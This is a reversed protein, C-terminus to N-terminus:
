DIHHDAESFASAISRWMPKRMMEADLPLPSSVFESTSNKNSKNLWSYRDSLGWTVVEDTVALSLVIDLFKRVTEAAQQDRQQATLLPSNNRVDMETVQIRLGLDKIERLFAYLVREDIPKGIPELHAQLGFSHVPVNRKKMGELLKLTAYRWRDGHKWVGETNYDNYVLQAKPDSEHAVQFALDIYRRGLGSLWLSNRLGDQHGDLPNVAENVVDWSRVVGAYRQVVTQIYNTLLPEAPRNILMTDLWAPNGAYWVLTHGRFMLGNNRAFQALYDMASFDYQGQKPELSYRKSEYEAVICRCEKLLASTFVPDKLQKSSVAAGYFIKRKRALEGLPKFVSYDFPSTAQTGRSLSGLFGGIAYSLVDRRNM